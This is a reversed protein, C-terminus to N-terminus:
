FPQCQCCAWPSAFVCIFNRVWSYQLITWCEALTSKLDNSSSSERIKHLIKIKGLLQSVRHKLFHIFLAKQHFSIESLRSRHANKWSNNGAFLRLQSCKALYKVSAPSFSSESKTLFWCDIPARFSSCFSSCCCIDHPSGRLSTLRKVNDKVNIQSDKMIRTMLFYLRLKRVLVTETDSKPSNLHLAAIHIICKM